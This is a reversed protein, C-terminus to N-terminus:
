PMGPSSHGKRVLMITDCDEIQLDSLSRHNWLKRGQFRLIQNEVYPGGAEEIKEKLDRITDDPDIAYTKTQGSSDKVFVQIEPSFTELVWVSVKSFIGYDALTRRSSLLQRDEGPEQFSLRLQGFLGCTKKIKTKMKWIPNYPDVSLTWSEQRMQKVMVQVDRAPQVHWGQSPDETWCCAQRLCYIAEKAVLDWRRERGLNNTPDAPDLIVPRREKLQKKIFIRVVENKFDYYKTWYICIDEYNRLLKMVAIFGEDLNFNENENTGMEWAYITLLELAYKPPLAAKRYKRKLYKLYWHKVLRLLSKLKAPRSKVFHRQLETFSPSFEGPCGYTTILNEYIEPPPKSDPCFNRLADFAPLVDVGIIESSKRAQVQFSLSRPVRTTERQQALTINYALSRSCHTLKDEILSIIVGRLQAQDQFSSFCNLFLVLDVDSSHNLTTGKGSSGGKVVKLVRVEQDGVLEDRFCHNRLFRESRQWADQVEEKWEPHPQLSQEVFADLRDAPTEYLDQSPEM